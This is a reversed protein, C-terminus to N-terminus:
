LVLPRAVGRLTLEGEVRTPHGDVFDVLRGSYRAEPWRATDLLNAGRAQESMADLGFDVSAADVVVELRGSGAERALTVAGRSANFKGRWVSLGGLHDAEFSPFTHAPDLEYEVEAATARPAVALAALLAPLLMRAHTMDIGLAHIRPRRRAVADFAPRDHQGRHRVGPCHVRLARDVDERPPRAWRGQGRARRHGRLGRHRLVGPHRGARFARGADLVARRQRRLPGNRRPLVVDGPRGRRGAAEAGRAESGARSRLLRPRAGHGARLNRVLQRQVSRVDPSGQRPSPAPPPATRGTCAPGRWDCWRRDRRVLGGRISMGRGIIGQGTERRM